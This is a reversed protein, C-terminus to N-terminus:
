RRMFPPVDVEDDPDDVVPMARSPLSGPTSNRQGPVGNSSPPPNGM